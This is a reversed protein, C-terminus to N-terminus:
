FFFCLIQCVQDAYATAKRKSADTSADKNMKNLQLWMKHIKNMSTLLSFGPLAVAFAFVAEEPRFLLVTSTHMGFHAGTHGQEVCARGQWYPALVNMLM